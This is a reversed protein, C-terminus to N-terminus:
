ESAGERAQVTERRVQRDYEYAERISELPDAEEMIQELSDVVETRVLYPVQDRWTPTDDDRLDALLDNLLARLGSM